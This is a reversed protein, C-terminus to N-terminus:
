AGFSKRNDEEQTVIWANERWSKKMNEGKEREICMRKYKKM